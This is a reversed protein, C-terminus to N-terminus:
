KQGANLGGEGKGKQYRVIAPKLWAVLSQEWQREHDRRLVSGLALGAELGHRM